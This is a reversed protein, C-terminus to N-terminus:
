NDPYIAAAVEQLGQAAYHNPCFLARGPILAFNQQRVARLSSYAPNETFIASLKSLSEDQFHWNTLLIVDPDKQIIFEPTIAGQNKTTLSELINNVGLKRCMDAFLTDHAGYPSQHAWLFVSPSHSHRQRTTQIIQESAQLFQQVLMEGRQEEGVAKAIGRVVYPIEDLTKAEQYRYVVIGTDELTKQLSQDLWNSVIVLDPQLSIIEEVTYSQVRGSVKQAKETTYSVGPNDVLETLARIREHDVLDLIIEDADLNMSVIRVPKTHTSTPINGCGIALFSLLLLLFFLIRKWM